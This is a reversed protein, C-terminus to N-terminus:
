TTLLQDLNFFIVQIYIQGTVYINIKSTREEYLRTHSLMCEVTAFLM